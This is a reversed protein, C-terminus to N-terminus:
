GVRKKPSTKKKKKGGGASNKSASTVRLNSRANTGGENLRKVHDVHKGDGVKVKGEKKMRNRATKRDSNKKVEKPDAQRQDTLKRQQCESRHTVPDRKKSCNTRSKKKRFHTV